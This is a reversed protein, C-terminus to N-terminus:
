CRGGDVHRRINTLCKVAPLLGASSLDHMEHRLEGLTQAKVALVPLGARRSIQMLRYGMALGALADVEVDELDPLPCHCPGRCYGSVGCESLLKGSVSDMVAFREALGFHEALPLDDSDADCLDTPLLPICIRM